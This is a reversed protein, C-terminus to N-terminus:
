VTGAGAGVGKSTAYYNRYVAVLMSTACYTRYVPLM